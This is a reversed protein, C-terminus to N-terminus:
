RPCCRCGNGPGNIWGPSATPATRRTPSTPPASRAASRGRRGGLRTTTPGNPSTSSFARVATMVSRGDLRASVVQTPQGGDGAATTRTKTMVRQKWAAAVERPLKMSDIGPHHAELDAWFLKGLLYADRQLSSFDVSPQRERLYDVLVDRMPGCQIRYRDILQECSPQGRGSFVQIAAPADQSWGGRAHLLQYFLPSRAHMDRSGSEAALTLLELCDGVRVDGVAGGKAAMIVGIRALAQQGVQSGLAGAVCMRDLEAFAAPDRTRAMEVALSRRAQPSNLLWGLSPRIVDACILVLLGSSLRSLSKRGTGANAAATVALERWDPQNEAGSIRWRDQWTDGAQGQLWNMVALVSLRRSQQSGVHDLAFPPALVRGLVASRGAATASWSVILPRAPFRSTLEAGTVGPVRAATVPAVAPRPLTQQDGGRPNM